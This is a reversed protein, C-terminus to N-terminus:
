TFSISLCQKVHVQVSVNDSELSSGIQLSLSIIRNTLIHDHTSITDEDGVLYSCINM